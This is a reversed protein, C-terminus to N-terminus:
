SKRRAVDPFRARIENVIQLGANEMLVPGPIGIKEIATRDISKMQTSNLIKM